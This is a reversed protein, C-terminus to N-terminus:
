AAEALGASVSLGTAQSCADGVAARALARTAGVVCAASEAPYRQTVPGVVADPEATTQQNGVVRGPEGGFQVNTDASEDRDVDGLSLRSVPGRSNGDGPRNLGSLTLRSRPHSSSSTARDILM